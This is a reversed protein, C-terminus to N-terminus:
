HAEAWNDGSGADVSLSVDLKVAPDAAGEMVDRARAVLDDVAGDEVEFILEDHVQLLMKAPLGEIADDMRVMARRIVDAATGQIPANIAARRAFGARPGKASIEPTHIKRGFLTQVYGHEKAFAITDDMYARIGPFREFYRDIFGQAQDRPIRLNRALGFGSIGYIVGFNIAKAQRRIDPTMEDLPVDFMESATMAHIDLGDRFAQKLADIGAIHALIRLEIQSYDLSVLKKGPEAVFAERIRRGEESRVPINQLNPDTSALRGTNAGAISYSTHVRGTDPNIHEQLADTYTSKLKSLQRWDLIRRPLEHETALDELVDAGTGYAGTKGKKGGELGLEDFLIEGLQKPSGVNFTRGALEHIEAELGAMKQAFANSMRSLTDRDVRIGAMEMRALVPVLPREMTEYVTTVHAKHLGPKFTKWLRLTIDADEAAYKVAEEVPVKDFTIASKGTGILSKIEIPLHGLYRESLQDMGHNHLGGHMAYSMLMTDDIPAVNIGYRALIKTDYKLNQGIKLISDDELVPRMMDLVEDLPMQGEALEDSGFLDDSGNQKHALPVYCAAGPEVSLCLGVLDVVMENLGTTETDVAVYGAERIRDIWVQLAARDSVCEYVGHDFPVDEVPAEETDAQAPPEAVAPPEVGLRDAIRRTITRFEMESLFALLTEPDPDRVELDDLGFDLTMGRDLQVLRKSLEIQARHDILTQRRKPQKIEEARDLLEELTGFENILLAATKIGIGPAGPVNDVSDGALAQVDVVREPGVGFKEKVGERDIRRNKMPDLMEVGDGVLQMLDKDSSVITVRGGADRAQCALTAIIDDAEFGEMEECAINFARTAERTLPIQPRLDEPMEDRNAKYQDYMDNRFTHSGKDFIVAVHTAADAGNNGEVYRQLMNCFGSVAGVPLGDSKRTLPPLAHYARFIFASGDILHLHCGKGFAM